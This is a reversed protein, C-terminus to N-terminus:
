QSCLEPGAGRPLMGTATYTEGVASVTEAGTVAVTRTLESSVSAGTEPVTARRTGGPQDASGASSGYASPGPPKVKELDRDRGRGVGCGAAVPEGGPQRVAVLRVLVDHGEVHRAGDRLALRVPHVPGVRTEPSPTSRTLTRARSSPLSRGTVKCLGVLPGTQPVRHATDDHPVQGPTFGPRWPKM